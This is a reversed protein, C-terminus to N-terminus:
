SRTAAICASPIKSSMSASAPPRMARTSSGAIRRSCPRQGSFAIATGGTARVRPRAVPACSARRRVISRKRTRVRSRDSAIRRVDVTHATRDFPGNVRELAVIGRLNAMGLNDSRLHNMFQTTALRQFMEIAYGDWGTVDRALQGLMAATGKSRRLRITDAVEARPSRLQSTHGYLQRYGILDGIYPIVWEACTEIFQNDYLQDIDEELIAIQEAIVGLLQKLPEGQDADRTRHVAPLLGYLRDVDFSM